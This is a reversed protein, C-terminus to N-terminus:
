ALPEWYGMEPMETREMRAMADKFHKTAMQMLGPNEDHGAAYIAAQWVIAMHYQQPIRPVDTNATLVQPARYYDVVVTLGADPAPHLHLKRDPSLAFYSPIGTAGTSPMLRFDEWSLESLFFRSKAGETTRYVYVPDSALARVKLGWAQAMDYAEQGVTLPATWSHWDFRWQERSLHISELATNVWDVVKAYAGVQADVSAPGTGSYGVEQRVRKAIELFNM